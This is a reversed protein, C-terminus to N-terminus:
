IRRDFIASGPRLRYLRAPKTAWEDRRRTGIEELFGREAVKRRFADANIPEGLAIQYTRHLETLTFEPPLLRAPLDSYAGKGRLRAVTAALILDHDFPMGNAEGVPVLELGPRDLVPELQALPALSYYVVTASWGRPDRTAGSFTSLQEVYLDTLHAKTKLVRRATSGLTDDSDLHAYGGILAARGAFPEAVRTARLLCLEDGRIALPVIDVTLMPRPFDHSVHVGKLSVM